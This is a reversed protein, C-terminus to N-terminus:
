ILVREAYTEREQGLVNFSYTADLPLWRSVVMNYYEVYVHHLNKKEKKRVAVFRWPVRNLELYSAIAISKDDCDGGSGQMTMTYRPRMLTEVGEPDDRFPINKVIEFIESIGLHAYPIMDGKYRQVMQHMLKGTESAQGNTLVRSVIM